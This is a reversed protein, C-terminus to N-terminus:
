GLFKYLWICYILALSILEVLWIILTNRKFFLKLVFDLSFLILFVPAFMIVGLYSWGGTSEFSAFSIIIAFVSFIIGLIAPSFIRFWDRKHRTEVM